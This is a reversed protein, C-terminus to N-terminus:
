NHTICSPHLIRYLVRSMRVISVCNMALLLLLALLFPAREPVQLWSCEGPACDVHDIMNKSEFTVTYLVQTAFYWVRWYIYMLITVGLLAIQNASLCM